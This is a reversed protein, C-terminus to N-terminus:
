IHHFIESKQIRHSFCHGDLNLFMQSCAKHNFQLVQGLLGQDLHPLQLVTGNNGYDTNNSIGIPTQLKNNLMGTGLVGRSHHGLGVSIFICVYYFILLVIPKGCLLCDTVNDSVIVQNIFNEAM